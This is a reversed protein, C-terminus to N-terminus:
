LTLDNCESNVDTKHPQGRSLQGFNGLTAWPAALYYM